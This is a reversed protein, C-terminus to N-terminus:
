ESEEMKPVGHCGTARDPAITDGARQWWVRRGDREYVGVRETTSWGALLLLVHDSASPLRVRAIVQRSQSGEGITPALRPEAGDLAYLASAPEPAGQLHVSAPDHTPPTGPLSQLPSM